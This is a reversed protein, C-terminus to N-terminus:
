PNAAPTSGSCLLRNPYGETSSMTDTREAADVVDDDDDVVISWCLVLSKADTGNEDRLANNWM